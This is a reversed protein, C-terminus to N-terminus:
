PRVRRLPDAGRRRPAGVCVGIM